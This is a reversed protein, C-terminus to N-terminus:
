DRLRETRERALVGRDEPARVVTLVFDRVNRRYARYEAGHQRRFDLVEDLPVGSVDIGVDQLDASVALPTVWGWADGARRLLAGREEPDDRASQVQSPQTLLTDPPAGLALLAAGLSLVGGGGTSWLKAMLRDDLSSLLPHRAQRPSGALQLDADPITSRAGLALVMLVTDYAQPTILVRGPPPFRSATRPPLAIAGATILEDVIADADEGSAVFHRIVKSPWLHEPVPAACQAVVTRMAARIDRAIAPSMWSEPEYNRLLGADFLPGALVPDADLLEECVEGPLLWAIGDFFLLLSKVWDMAQDPWTWSSLYQILEPKAEAGAEGM